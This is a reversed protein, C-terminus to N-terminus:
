GLSQLTSLRSGLLLSVIVHWELVWFVSYLYKSGWLTWVTDNERHLTCLIMVILAIAVMLTSLTSLYSLWPSSEVQLCEDGGNGGDPQHNKVISNSPPTSFPASPPVLSCAASSWWIYGTWNASFLLIGVTLINYNTIGNLAKSLNIASISKSEGFSFFASHSYTFITIATYISSTTYKHTPRSPPGSRKDASNPVSRAAPQFLTQLCTHQCDLCIFLPLNSM